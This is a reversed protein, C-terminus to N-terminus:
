EDDAEGSEDDKKKQEDSPKPPKTAKPRGRKAAPRTGEIRERAEATRQAIFEVNAIDEVLIYPPHPLQDEEEVKADKAAYLSARFGIGAWAAADLLLALAVLAPLSKASELLREAMSLTIQEPMDPLAQELADAQSELSRAYARTDASIDAIRARSAASTSSQAPVGRGISAAAERITEVPNLARLSRMESLARASLIKLQADKQAGDLTNDAQGTRLDAVVAELASIHDQAKALTGALLSAAGQYTSRSLGYADYVSGQGAIGTPGGGSAELTQLRAAQAARDQLGALIVTLQDTFAAMELGANDLGDITKKQSLQESIEGATAMLNATVSVTGYMGFGIAAVFGYILLPKRYQLKPVCWAGTWMITSVALLAGGAAAGFVYETFGPNDFQSVIGLGSFASSTIAIHTLLPRVKADFEACEERLSLSTETRPPLVRVPM